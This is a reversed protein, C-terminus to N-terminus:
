KSNGRMKKLLDRYSDIIMDPQFDKDKVRAWSVLCTNVNANKGALYDSYNDGIYIAQEPDLCYKQLVLNIGEPDPKPKNVDDLTIIIDFLDTIKFYNMIDLASDQYRSTVVALRYNKKLERLVEIADEYMKADNYGNIDIYSRYTNLLVNFDEKFYKPFMELLPPGLFSLEEDKTLIYEPRYKNFVHHYSNIVLQDTNVLTGDLDFIIAKIQKPNVTMM